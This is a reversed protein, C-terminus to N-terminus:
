EKNLIQIYGHPIFNIQSIRILPKTKSLPFGRSLFGSDTPVLRGAFGLADQAICTDPYWNILKYNLVSFKFSMKYPLCWSICNLYYNPQWTTKQRIHNIAKLCLVCAYQINPSTVSIIPNLHILIKNKRIIRIMVWNQDCYYHTLYMNKVRGQINTEIHIQFRTIRGKNVTRFIFSYLRSHLGNIYFWTFYICHWNSISISSTFCFFFFYYSSLPFVPDLIHNIILYVTHDLRYNLNSFNINSSPNSFKMIEYTLLVHISRM